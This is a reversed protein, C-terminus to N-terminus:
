NSSTREPSVEGDTQPNGGYTDKVSVNDEYRDTRRPRDPRATMMVSPGEPLKDIKLTLYRLIDENLRMNRELEEITSAPAEIHFMTYHGKRNKRIKYALNRLGWYEQRKIEGSNSSVIKTLDKSLQEAQAATLEQRAIYVCEYIAM